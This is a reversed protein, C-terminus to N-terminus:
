TQSRCRCRAGESFRRKGRSNKWPKPIAADFGYKAFDSMIPADSYGSSVILKSSADLENLKAAAEIGDM